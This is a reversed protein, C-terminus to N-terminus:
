EWIKYNRKWYWLLLYGFIMGGVHAFHAINTTTDVFGSFLELLGYGIVFYKAKMPIPPILLMIRDNPHMVGFGLLIGFVAGSAGVTLVNIRQNYIAWDAASFLQSKTEALMHLDNLEWALVGSHLLGAGIGTALYYILFRRSNLDRELISGFMWLAFMNMFLHTFNAHLFISTVYQYLEFAPSAWYHLGLMQTMQEGMGAPLLEQAMFFLANIIILNKVVPPTSNFM